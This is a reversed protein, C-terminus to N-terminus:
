ISGAAVEEESYHVVMIPTNKGIQMLFYGSFVRFAFLPPPTYNSDTLITLDDYYIISNIV